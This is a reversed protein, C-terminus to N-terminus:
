MYYKNVNAEMHSRDHSHTYANGPTSSYRVHPNSVPCANVPCHCFTFMRPANLGLLVIALLLLPVINFVYWLAESHRAASHLDLFARATMFCSWLVLLVACAGIIVVHGMHYGRHDNNAAWATALLLIVSLILLIITFAQICQIGNHMKSVSHKDFMLVVGATLVAFLATAVVYMFAVLMRVAGCLTNDLHVVLRFILQTILLALLVPAFYDLWVSAKYMAFKDGSTHKLAARLFLCVCLVAMGLFGFIYELGGCKFAMFLLGLGLLLAIAGLVWGAAVNPIYTLWERWPSCDQSPCLFYMWLEYIVGIITIGGVEGEGGVITTSYGQDMTQTVTHYETTYATTFTTLSDYTPMTSGGNTPPMVTQTVTTWYTEASTYPTSSTAGATNSGDPVTVTSMFTVATTSSSSLIQNM